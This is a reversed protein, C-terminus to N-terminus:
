DEHNQGRPYYKAASEKVKNRYVERFRWNSKDSNLFEEKLLSTLLKYYIEDDAKEKLKVVIRPNLTTEMSEGM